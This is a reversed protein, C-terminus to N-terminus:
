PRSVSNASGNIAWQVGIWDVLSFGGPLSLEGLVSDLEPVPM